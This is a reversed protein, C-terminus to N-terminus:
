DATFIAYINREYISTYETGGVKFSLGEHASFLVKDGINTEMGGGFHRHEDLGPGVAVITGIASEKPNYSGRCVEPIAIGGPSYEAKLEKKLIVKGSIPKFKPVKMM